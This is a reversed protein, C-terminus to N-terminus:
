TWCWRSAETASSPPGSAADAAGQLGIMAAAAKINHAARFADGLREASAREGAAELALLSAELTEVLDRIEQRFSESFDDNM